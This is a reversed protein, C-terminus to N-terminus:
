SKAELLVAEVGLTVTVEEGIVGPMTKIGFDYRSLVVSGEFGARTEKPDSITGVSTVPIAIRKTVGHMTFDGILEFQTKSVPKVSVSKFHITPFRAVEFFDESRLHKDRAESDTDISSAEITVEVKSKSVDQPDLLIMGQYKTFRGSVKSLGLHRVRFSVESHATDIHYTEAGFAPMLILAATLIHRMVLM